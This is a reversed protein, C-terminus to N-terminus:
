YVIENTSIRMILVLLPMDKKVVKDYFAVISIKQKLVKELGLVLKEQQKNSLPQISQIVVEIMSHKKYYLKCFCKAINKFEAIAVAGGHVRKLLNAQEMTLLDRRVTEISIDFLEMLKATTVAGDKQIM